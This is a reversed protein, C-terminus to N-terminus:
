NYSHKYYSLEDLTSSGMSGLTNTIEDYENLKAFTSYVFYSEMTVKNTTTISTNFDTDDYINFYATSDISYNDLVVDTTIVNPPWMLLMSDVLVNGDVYIYSNFYNVSAPTASAKASMDINFNTNILPYQLDTILQEDISMGSHLDVDVYIDIDSSQLDTPTYNVINAVEVKDLINGCIIDYIVEESTSAVVEPEFYHEFNADLNYMYTSSTCDDVRLNFVHAVDTDLDYSISSSTYSNAKPNFELDFDVDILPHQLDAVVSETINLYASMDVDVYTDINNYQLDLAEYSNVEAVDFEDLIEDCEILYKFGDASYSQAQAEHGIEVHSDTDLGFISATYINTLADLDPEFDADIIYKILDAGSEMYMNAKFVDRTITNKIRAKYPLSDNTILEYLDAVNMHSDTDLGFISSTYDTIIIDLKNADENVLNYKIIDASGDIVEAELESTGQNSNLTTFNNCIGDLLYATLSEEFDADIYFPLLRTIEVYLGATVENVLTNSIDVNFENQTASQVYFDSSVEVHGDANLRLLDGVSDKLEYHVNVSNDLIADVSLEDASYLDYHSQLYLEANVFTIHYAFYDMPAATVSLEASVDIVINELEISADFLTPDRFIMTSTPIINGDVEVNYLFNYPEYANLEVNPIIIEEDFLIQGIVLDGIVPDLEFAYVYDDFTTLTNFFTAESTELDLGLELEFDASVLYQLLDTTSFSISATSTLIVKDIAVFTKIMDAYSGIVEYLVDLGIDADAYAILGVERASLLAATSELITYDVGISAEFTNAGYTNLEYAVNLVDGFTAIWSFYDGTINYMSATANLNFDLITIPKLKDSVYSDLFADPTIGGDIPVDHSFKRAIYRRIKTQLEIDDTFEAFFMFSNTTSSLLSATTTIFDRLAFDYHMLDASYTTTISDFSLVEDIYIKTRFDLESASLFQVKPTIADDITFYTTVPTADYTDIVQESVLEFDVPIDTIFTNQTTALLAASPIIVDKDFTIKYNFSKTEGALLGATPVLIEEDFTTLSNIMLGENSTIKYNFDVNDELPISTLFYYPYSSFMGAYMKDLIPGVNDTFIIHESEYSDLTSDLYDELSIKILTSFIDGGTSQDIAKRLLMYTKYLRNM